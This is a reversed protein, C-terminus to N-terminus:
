QQPRQPPGDVWNLDWASDVTIFLMGNEPAWAQHVMKSPIYNFSGPGVEDRKGSCEFVWTGSLITHTENASHWHRPVHMAKPTRILLQTAQTKPDVRLIAIESSDQGWEPFMKQWAVNQFRVSFYEPAAAAPTQAQKEASPAARLRLLPHSLFVVGALLAALLGGMFISREKM